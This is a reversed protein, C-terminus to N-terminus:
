NILPKSTNPISSSNRATPTATWTKRTNLTQSTTPQQPVPGKSRTHYDSQVHLGEEIVEEDEVVNCSPLMDWLVMASESPQDMNEEDIEGEIPDNYEKEQICGDLFRNEVMNM